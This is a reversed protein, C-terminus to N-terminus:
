LGCSAAPETCPHNVAYHARTRELCLLDYHKETQLNGHIVNLIHLLSLGPIAFDQPLARIEVLRVIGTEAHHIVKVSDEFPKLPKPSCLVSIHLLDPVPNKHRGHKIGPSVNHSQCFVRVEFKRCICLRRCKGTAQHLQLWRDAAVRGHCSSYFPTQLILSYPM